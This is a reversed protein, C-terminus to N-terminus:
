LAMYAALLKGELEQAARGDQLCLTTLVTSKHLVHRAQKAPYIARLAALGASAAAEDTYECVSVTVSGDGTTGGECFSAKYTAGLGQRKTVVAGGAKAFAALIDDANPQIAPRGHAERVLRDALTAAIGPAASPQPAAPAVASEV